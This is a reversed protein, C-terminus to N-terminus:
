NDVLTDREWQISYQIVVIDYQTVFMFLKKKYGLTVLSFCFSLVLFGQKKTALCSKMQGQRDTQSDKQRDLIQLSAFECIRDM